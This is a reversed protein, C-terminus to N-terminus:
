FALNDVDQFTTSDLLLLPLHRQVFDEYKWDRDELQEREGVWIYVECDVEEHDLTVVQVPIRAYDEGEYTDM